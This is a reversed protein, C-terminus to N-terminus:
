RERDSSRGMLDADLDAVADIVAADVEDMEASIEDRMSAWRNAAEAPARRLADGVTRMEDRARAVAEKSRRRVDDKTRAMRQRSSELLRDYAELRENVAREFADWDEAADAALQSEMVDVEADLEDFERDLEDLYADWAADDEEEMRRLETRIEADKARVADLRREVSRDVKDKGARARARVDDIRRGLAGLREETAHHRDQMTETSM